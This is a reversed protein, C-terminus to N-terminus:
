RWTPFTITAEGCGTEGFGRGAFYRAVYASGLTFYANGHVTDFTRFGVSTGFTLIESNFEQIARELNLVTTQRETAGQLITKAIRGLILFFDSPILNGGIGLRSCEHVLHASIYNLAASQVDVSRNGLAESSVGHDRNPLNHM